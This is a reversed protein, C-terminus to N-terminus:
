QLHIGADGYRLVVRKSGTDIEMLDGVPPFVGQRKSGVLEVSTIFTVGKGFYRYAVSPAETYGNRTIEYGAEREVEADFLQGGESRVWSRLRALAIGSSKEIVTVQNGALETNMTSPFHFHQRYTHEADSSATDVLVIPGRPFVALDRKLAVGSYLEHGARAILIRDSGSGLKEVRVEEVHADGLAHNGADVSVTNHSTTALMRDVMSATGSPYGSGVLLPRGLYVYLSLADFHNHAPRIKPALLSVDLDGEEQRGAPYRIHVIGADEWLTRLSEPPPTKGVLSDVLFRAEPWRRYPGDPWRSVDFEQRVPGGDTDGFLPATGDPYVIEAAYTLMSRLRTEYDPSLPIGHKECVM